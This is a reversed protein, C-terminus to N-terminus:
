LVVPKAAHSTFDLIKHIRGYNYDGEVYFLQGMDGDRIMQKLQLFRPSIRLILNSSMKLSPKERLLRHIHAAESEYLCLPKEVFIHKDNNIAQVIQEYHYNDYSAISVIDIDPDLLLEDAQHALKMGPYKTGALSLKEDSFDCLAVVDCDPHSRYGEIHQEGVGLGIIGARLRKM